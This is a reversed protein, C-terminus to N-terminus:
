GQAPQPQEQTTTSAAAPASPPAAAPTAYVLQVKPPNILGEGYGRVFLQVVTSITTGEYDARRVAKNWTTDDVRVSRAPNEPGTRRRRAM